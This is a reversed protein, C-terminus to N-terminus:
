KVGTTMDHIRRLKAVLLANKRELKACTDVVGNNIRQAEDNSKTLTAIWSKLELNDEELTSMAKMTSEATEAPIPWRHCTAIWQRCANTQWGVTYLTQRGVPVEKPEEDGPYWYNFGPEETIGYKEAKTPAAKEEVEELIPRPYYCLQVCRRVVGDSDICKDGINPRRFDVIPGQRGLYMIECAQLWIACEVEWAPDVGFFIASANPCAPCVKVNAKGCNSCDKPTSM